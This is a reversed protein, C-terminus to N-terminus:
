LVRNVSLIGVFFQMNLFTYNTQWREHILIEKLYKIFSGRETNKFMHVISLQYSCNFDAPLIM